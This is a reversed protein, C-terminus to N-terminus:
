AASARHKIDKPHADNCFIVPINKERCGALLKATQPVIAQGRECALAGTVFDNLMDVVLVAHKKEHNKEKIYIPAHICTM